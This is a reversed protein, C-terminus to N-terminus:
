GNNAMWTLLVVRAPVAFIGIGLILGGNRETWTRNNRNRKQSAGAEEEQM